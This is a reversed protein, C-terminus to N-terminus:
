KEPVPASRDGAEFRRLQKAYYANGPDLALCQKMRDVAQGTEGRRFHVEALTDLHGPNDPRM